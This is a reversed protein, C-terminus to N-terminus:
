KSEKLQATLAAKAEQIATYEDFSEVKNYISSLIRAANNIKRTNLEGADLGLVTLPSESKFQALAKPAILQAKADQLDRNAENLQNSLQKNEAQLSELEANRDSLKKIDAQQAEIITLLREMEAHLKTDTEFAPEDDEEEADLTSSNAEQSEIAALTAAQEEAKAQKIAAKEAVQEAFVEQVEEAGEKLAEEAEEGTLGEEQIKEATEKIIEKAEQIREFSMSALEGLVRSPILTFVDEAEEQAFEKALKIAKMTWARGFSFEDNAWQVTHKSASHKVGAKDAEQQMRDNAELLCCAINYFAKGATELNKNISRALVTLTRPAKTASTNANNTAKITTM